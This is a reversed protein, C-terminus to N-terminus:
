SNSRSGYLKSKLLEIEENTNKLVINCRRINRETTLPDNLYREFDSRKKINKELKRLASKKRLLFKGFGSLEVSNNNWMAKHAEHFQHSIVAEIISSATNTRVAMTKVLYEKVSMSIPKDM